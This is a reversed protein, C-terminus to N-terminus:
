VPQFVARCFASHHFILHIYTGWVRRDSSVFGDMRESGPAWTTGELLDTRPQPLPKKSRLKREDIKNLQLYKGANHDSWSYASRHEQGGILDDDAHAVLCRGKTDVSIMEPGFLTQIPLLGMGPVSQRNGQRRLPDHLMNGLIQYGGCIGVVKGGGSLHRFITTDGGTERLCDLDHVTRASGPLVIIDAGQPFKSAYDGPRVWEVHLGPDGRLPLFEDSRGRFPLQFIAIRRM